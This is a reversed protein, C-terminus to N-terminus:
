SSSSVPKQPFLLKYFLFNQVFVAISMWQDCGGKVQRAGGATLQAPRIKGVSSGQLCMVYMCLKNAGIEHIKFAINSCTYGCSSEWIWCHNKGALKCRLGQDQWLYSVNQLFMTAFQLSEPLIKCQFWACRMQLFM